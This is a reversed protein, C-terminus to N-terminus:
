KSHVTIKTDIGSQFEMVMKIASIRSDEDGAYFFMPNVMYNGRTVFVLLGCEALRQFAISITKDAYEKSKSYQKHFAAFNRRTMLNNAIYNGATMNDEIWEMLNKECGDIGMLLMLAGRYRKVSSKQASTYDYEYDDHTFGAKDTKRVIKSRYKIKIEQKERM